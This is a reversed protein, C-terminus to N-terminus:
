ELGTLKLKSKNESLCLLAVRSQLNERRHLNLDCDEPNHRRTTNRYSVLTESTWTAKLKQTTVGHLTTTLCWHKLPGHQRWSRPQSAMYHQPLIGFNWLDMNYGDEPNHRRTTNHYSVL